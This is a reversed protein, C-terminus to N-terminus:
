QRLIQRIEMPMLGRERFSDMRVLRGQYALGLAVLCILWPVGIIISLLSLVVYDRLRM